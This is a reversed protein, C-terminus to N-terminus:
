EIIFNVFRKRKFILMGKEKEKYKKYERRNVNFNKINGNIDFKLYYTVNVVNNADLNTFTKKEILIAKVKEEPAKENLYWNIIVCIFLIVFFSIIVVM